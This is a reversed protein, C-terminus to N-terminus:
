LTLFLIDLFNCLTNNFIFIYFVIFLNLCILIIKLYQSLTTSFVLKNVLQEFWFWKIIRLYYFTSIVSTVMGVVVLSYYKQEFLALFLFYKGFFGALPPIGAMSFIIITFSIAYLTNHKAFSNLDSLYLLPRNTVNDSTNLLIIFLVLNTVVYIILFLVSAEITQLVGGVLGMLLFGMQNISSYALFKRLRKEVLAYLAGFVMSCVSSFWFIFAWIFYLDKFVCLFLKFIFILVAIKIPLVFLAMVTQPSGEYIEAAWLHCPFAALKFFLGFLLFYLMTYLLETQTTFDWIQLIWTIEVFNTSLFTIYILWIGFGLLGSSVASLYFYKIAAERSNHYLFDTLILVYITLSFGVISLFAIMFDNACVLVATFFLFLQIIIPFEVPVAKSKIFYRTSASLIVKVTFFLIFKFFLSYMDFSLQHNFGFFNMWDHGDEELVVYWSDLSIRLLFVSIIFISIQLYQSTLRLIVLALDNAKVLGIAHEVRQSKPSSLRLLSHLISILLCIEPSIYLFDIFHIHITNLIM